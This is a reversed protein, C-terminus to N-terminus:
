FGIIELKDLKGPGIVQCVETLKDFFKRKAAVRKKLTLRYIKDHGNYVRSVMHDNNIPSMVDGDYGFPIKVEAAIGRLAFLDQIRDRNKKLVTECVQRHELTPCIRGMPGFENAWGRLTFAENIQEGGGVCVTTHFKLTLEKMWLLVEENEILNGSVIVYASPNIM